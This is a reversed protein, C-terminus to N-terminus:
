ECFSFPFLAPTFSPSLSSPLDHLELTSSLLPPHQGWLLYCLSSPCPFATTGCRRLHWRQYERQDRKQYDEEKSFHFHRSGAPEGAFLAQLTDPETLWCESPRKVYLFFFPKSSSVYVWKKER